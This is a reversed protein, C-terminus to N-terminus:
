RAVKDGGQSKDAREEVQIGGEGTDELTKPHRAMYEDHIYDAQQNSQTEHEPSHWLETDGPIEPPQQCALQGKSKEVQDAQPPKEPLM